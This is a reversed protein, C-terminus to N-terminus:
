VGSHERFFVSEVDGVAGVARDGEAAFHGVAVAEDGARGAGALGDGQLHDGFGEALRAHGAEHRVHLSVEAADALHALHGTEDLFAQRLEAQLFRRELTSAISNRIRMM